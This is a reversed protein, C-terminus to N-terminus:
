DIKPSYVYQLARRIFSLREPSYYRKLKYLADDIDRSYMYVYTDKESSRGAYCIEMLQYEFKNQEREEYTRVEEEKRKRKEGKKVEKEKQKKREQKGRERGM